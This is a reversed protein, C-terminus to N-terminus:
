LISLHQVATLLEVDIPPVLCFMICIHLTKKDVDQWKMIWVSFLCSVDMKPSKNKAVLMECALLKSALTGCDGKQM